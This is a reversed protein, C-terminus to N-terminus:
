AWTAATREDLVRQGAVHGFNTRNLRVLRQLDIAARPTIVFNRGRGEVVDDNRKVVRALSPMPVSSTEFM